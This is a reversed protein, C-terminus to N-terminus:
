NACEIVITNIKSLEQALIIGCNLLAYVAFFHDFRESFTELEEVLYAVEVKFIILPNSVQLTSRHVVNYSHSHM